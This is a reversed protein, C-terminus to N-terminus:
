INIVSASCSTKWEWFDTKDRAYHDNMILENEGDVQLYSALLASVLTRFIKPLTKNMTLINMTLINMTLINM